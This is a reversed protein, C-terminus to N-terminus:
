KGSSKKARSKARASAAATRSRVSTSTKKAAAVTKSGAKKAASAVKSTAKKIVPSATAGVRKGVRAAAAKTAKTARSENAVQRALIAATEAETYTEGAIWYVGLGSIVTFLVVGLWGTLIFPLLTSVFTTKGAALLIGSLLAGVGLATAVGMILLWRWADHVRSRLIRWQAIPVILVVLLVVVIMGVLVAPNSWDLKVFTGPLLAVLWTLGMALTTVLIWRWVPVRVPGRRLAIVEGVGLALGQFLGSFVLIVFQGAGNWGETVAYALAIAPPIFGGSATVVVLSFWWWM